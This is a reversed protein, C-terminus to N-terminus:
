QQDNKPKEKEQEVFYQFKPVGFNMIVYFDKRVTRDYIIKGRETLQFTTGDTQKEILDTEFILEFMETQAPKHPDHGICLLTEIVPFSYVVEAMPNELYDGTSLELIGRSRDLASIQEYTWGSEELLRYEDFDLNIPIKGYRFVYCEKDLMELLFKERAKEPSTSWLDYHGSPALVQYRRSLM